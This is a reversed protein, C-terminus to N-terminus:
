DLLMRLRQLEVLAQGPTLLELDLGALMTVAPHVAEGFLSLQPKREARVPLERRLMQRELLRLRQRAQQIVVAPVGALAAVQLGYSRSAPGEQVRHLFVIREGHEVADLHVNAIGPQEDPLRTLEFYHTAFLTFARVTSALQAACAWALALGDFTSTGRGIEDILVLSHPTANHLINAAESMEVMFTSRGGALDDSAGIRTFIRDVPGIVAREAPVFSGLHALLVILATQRMFTSKGGLNPGTVILMRRQGPELQLDNPVFPEDLVQEVVPHRGATIEIGSQDVLEPPSWRLAAAREALNSLGDLEALAAASAQLGPLWVQLQELLRDYLAKERALAREQAHLVKHEFEQLEPIIYREAGKLTQRRHYDPPVAQSQARTVELYYGHVRNFGVKLNAIGTRQRERAELDVLYQDAHESLSRLADLEADYGPAIVGGDRIMQPPNAIIARNLLNCAEPHTGACRALEQLLSVDCVKLFQQLGPLRDLADALTILDRPRASKLAVRALIREVDGTGRLLGRLYEYGGNDLLQRLSAHRQRLIDHDRLPRHMWRRLLRAGMPTVCRDLIGLLTHEHQGSLSHELELNRRTAADLIVSDEHREVRLGTLHPLAGRQTDKVYQLLCGAAAVAVAQDACGFGDLNHVAFQTCLMRAASDRDFHWPAQRRLGPHERWAGPPTFDEDILLEAPRLRELESLLAAEGHLQTVTFRGGSLDLHALGYINKVQHLALLLNDRREDLLAEDTLTGPTVIRTVQREMPGKSTTSDGIQECIAVSQGLKILKALYGEVAHFPVGAMPIPAGASQGRTTLTINLLEAARQADDYFLEYFDGMRYLLLINPHEAKIRLYQQMMPTHQSLDPALSRTTPKKM